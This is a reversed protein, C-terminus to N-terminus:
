FQWHFGLKLVPYFNIDAVDDRLSQEEADLDAQDFIPNAQLAANANLDANLSGTFLVGLDISFAFQDEQGFMFDWAVGVYPAFNNFYLDGSLEEGGLPTITVGNLDINEGPKAKIQATNDVAYAGISFRLGRWGKKDHFPNFDASLGTAFLNLDSDYNNGELEDSRSYSGGGVEAKIKLWPQVKYKASVGLGTTGGFVGASWNEKDKFGTLFDGTSSPPLDGQASAISTVIATLALPYLINKM